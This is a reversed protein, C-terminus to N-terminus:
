SECRRGPQIVACRAVHPVVIQLRQKLELAAKEIQSGDITNFEFMGFHHPVMVPVGAQLCLEAAEALTMNGAIGSAALKESRGNVPLMAVDVGHERLLNALGDYVLTDGSHYVTTLGFHLIFGLCRCRGAGDTAITEHAAHAVHLRVGPYLDFTEGADVCVARDEPVGRSVALEREAGPVFFRCRPHHEALVKLTGPDMHDTHGHSALVADIRDFEVPMAPAPMMRVHPFETGAYKGALSDSLYPDILLNFQGYRLAFGAQGLWWIGVAEAPLSVDSYHRALRGDFECVTVEPKHSHTVPM